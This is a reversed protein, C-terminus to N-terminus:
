LSSVWSKVQNLEHTDLAKCNPKNFTTKVYDSLKNADIGSANALQVIENILMTNVASETNSQANQDTPKSKPERRQSQNYITKERHDTPKNRLDRRKNPGYVSKEDYVFRADNNDGIVLLTINKNEDYEIDFVKFKSYTKLKGNKDKFFEDNSLKIYIFPASYLERGIGWNFGARKFSDSAQGKEKETNSETGVDQKSVWEGNEDRISITCYLRDGILEHSRKWNMTGVTEDLINMDVRADKYLLVVAGVGNKNESLSQIRCDIEDARLARFKM